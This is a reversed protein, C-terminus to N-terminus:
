LGLGIIGRVTKPSISVFLNPVSSASGVMNVEVYSKWKGRNRVKLNELMSRM